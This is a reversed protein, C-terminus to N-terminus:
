KEFSGLLISIAKPREGVPEGSRPWLAETAQPPFSGRMLGWVLRQGVKTLIHQRHIYTIRIEFLIAVNSKILTRL